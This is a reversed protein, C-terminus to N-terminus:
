LQFKATVESLQDSINKQEESMYSVEDIVSVVGEVSDMVMSSSETTNQAAQTVTHMADSVDSMIVAISEARNGIKASIEEILTADIGYQKSIQNFKDYDPTVTDKLFIVLDRTGETMVKFAEEVEQITTKIENVARSTEGALKGIEAAVVAFGRGHEGARAAEISANLSLMNIQNAISSIMNAMISINEVVKANEVAKNLNKEYQESMGIAYSYAKKSSEEIEKAREMIEMAKDSSTETESALISVSTNVDTVAANVKQTSASASLMDKNVQGMYIKIKNLQEALQIAAERLQNSSDNVKEADMSINKIVSKNEKYMYNLAVSMQGLEDKRKEKLTRITFDGKALSEAFVKVKRLNFSITKVQVLVAIICIILAIISVTGLEISLNVSTANLEAQPIKIILYWNVGPVTDYYLNYYEEGEVYSTMGQGDKIIQKGAEALLVNADETISLASAVKEVDDCSLYTGDKTILMANGNEGVQVANVLKEIASLEMDVTLAGIFAGSENYIPASCSAMIVQLTPDYYPDTIIAEGKSEKARIYYEQTFYDYEANSYDYTLLTDDGEKYWYPGIYEEATDYVHPEFWIGSGLVLENDWIIDTLMKGYVPMQTEEYTTGVVKAINEATNKVVNLYNDIGNVNATLEAKMQQGITDNIIDQSTNASIITLILMAVIVVPLIGLLMKVEIRKM